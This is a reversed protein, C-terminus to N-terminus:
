EKYKYFSSVTANCEKIAYLATCNTNKVMNIANIAKQKADDKWKTLSLDSLSMGYSPLYKELAKRSLKFEKLDRMVDDGIIMFMKVFEAVRQKTSEQQVSKPMYVGRLQEWEKTYNILTNASVHYKKALKKLSEGKYREDLINFIYKRTGNKITNSIKIATDKNMAGYIKPGGYTEFHCNYLYSKNCDFAAFWEAEKNNIFESEASDVVKFKFASEGHKNFSAQLIPNGHKGRRLESLHSRKRSAPDNTRGIYFKGTNSNEIIYIYEM